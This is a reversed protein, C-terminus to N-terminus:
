VKGKLIREVNEVQYLPIRKRKIWMDLTITTKYGLQRTILLKNTPKKNLFKKLKKITKEM